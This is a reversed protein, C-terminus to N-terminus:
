FDYWTDFGPDACACNCALCTSWGGCINLFHLLVDRAQAQSLCNIFRILIYVHDLRAAACAKAQEKRTSAILLLNYRQIPNNKRCKNPAHLQLLTLAHRPETLTALPLHLLAVSAPLQPSNLEFSGGNQSVSRGATNRWNSDRTKVPRKDTREAASLTQAWM